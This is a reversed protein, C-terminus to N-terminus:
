EKTALKSGNIIIYYHYFLMFIGYVNKNVIPEM